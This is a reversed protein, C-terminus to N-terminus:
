HSLEATGGDGDGTLDAGADADGQTGQQEWADKAEAVFDDVVEGLEAFTERSKEYLLSGTKAAARGMPGALAAAVPLVLPTIAILGIGVAVGTIIEGTKVVM